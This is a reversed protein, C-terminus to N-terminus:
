LIRHILTLFSEIIATEVEKTGNTTALSLPAVASYFCVGTKLFAIGPIFSFRPYHTNKDNKLTSRHEAGDISLERWSRKFSIASYLSDQFDVLIRVV